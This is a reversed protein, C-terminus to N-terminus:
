VDSSRTKLETEVQERDSFKLRESGILQYDEHGKGAVLIIDDAAASQIAYKIALARDLIVEVPAVASLGQQIEQIIQQSPESRPNDDTLVVRDSLREAISGMLPRKGRDRDGGCGFVCWLKGRCHERLSILVKELADPSHAYDVIVQPCADGGFSELRGAVNHLAALGLLIEQFSCQLVGLVSLVALSNSLNFRGFLPSIFHAEGWPTQVHLGFGQALLKIDDAIVLSDSDFGKDVSVDSLTYGVCHV